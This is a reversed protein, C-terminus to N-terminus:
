RKLLNQKMAESAIATASFGLRSNKRTMIAMTMTM